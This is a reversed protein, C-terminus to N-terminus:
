AHRALLEALAGDLAAVDAAGDLRACLVDGAGPAARRFLRAEGAGLRLARLPGAGRGEAMGAARALLEAAAPGLCAGAEALLADHDEQRYGPAAASRLVTGTALDGFVLARCGATERQLRDIGEALQM